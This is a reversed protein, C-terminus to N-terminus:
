ILHFSIIIKSDIKVVKLNLTTRLPLWPLLTFQSLALISGGYAFKAQGFGHFARYLAGNHIFIFCLAEFSVTHTQEWSVGLLWLIPTLILEGLYSFNLNDEGFLTGSWHLLTECLTAFSM